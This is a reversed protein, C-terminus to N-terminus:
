PGDAVGMFKRLRQRVLRIATRPNELTGKIWRFLSVANESRDIIRAAIAPAPSTSYPGELSSAKRSYGGFDTKTHTADSGFGINQILSRKPAISSYGKSWMYAVWQYDWTNIHSASSIRARIGPIQFSPFGLDKLLKVQNLETWFPIEVDFEGVVRRWTAWGWVKPRNSFYFDQSIPISRYTSWGQVMGVTEDFEYRELMENVFPFFSPAPICDDELIIAKDELDFIWKLGTSFREKLGMNSEAVNYLVECDWPVNRFLLEVEKCKQIDSAVGARPGDAVFMLKSPKHKELAEILQRLEAPRNFCFIAVPARPNPTKQSLPDKIPYKLNEPIKNM